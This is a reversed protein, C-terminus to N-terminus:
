SRSTERKSNYSSFSLVNKGTATKFLSQSKLHNINLYEYGLLNIIDNYYCTVTETIPKRPQDHACSYTQAMKM